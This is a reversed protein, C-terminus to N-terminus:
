PLPARRGCGDCGAENCRQATCELTPRNPPDYEEPEETPDPKVAGARIREGVTAHATFEEPFERKGTIYPKGKWPMHATDGPNSAPLAESVFTVGVTKLQDIMWQLGGNSLGCEAYGGGVDSHAGPFLIQRIQKKERPSWLTPTFDVREEDLSVAHFGWEVNDSLNPNAFEFPDFRRDDHIEPIGIAAVTDWVAVSRVLVDKVFDTDALENRSLFGPLNAIVEAFTASWNKKKVPHAERYRYWAQAGYRYAQEKDKPKKPDNKFAGEALDKPLLGQSVILAALARATYAGRSFGVIHIADGPEYMRSIYTYGRVIRSI